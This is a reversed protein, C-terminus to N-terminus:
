PRAPAGCIGQSSKSFYIYHWTYHVNRGGQVPGRVNPVPGAACVRPLGAPM